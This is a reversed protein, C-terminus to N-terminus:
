EGKKEYEARIKAVYETYPYNADFTQGSHWTGRKEVPPFTMYDGYFTTLHNIYGNYAPIKIHEFDLFVQEQVDDKYIIKKMPNAYQTNVFEGLCDAETSANYKQAITELEEYIEMPNRGCYNEVRQKNSEDLCPNSIRMFTSLEKTLEGIRKYASILESKKYADIPFVDIAIGMNYNEWAFIDSVDTTNSNRLKIASYYYGPDTIPTQLFYPTAFEDAHKQLKEYDSRIMWFDMDDDWPIFGKHRVAGLLTGGSAFLKLDYKQCVRQLEFFLDLMVAWVKKREVDVYFDCRTEPKLFDETIIGKEIIREIETMIDGCEKQSCITNKFVELVKNYSSLAYLPFKAMEFNHWM